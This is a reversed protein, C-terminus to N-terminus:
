LEYHGISNKIVYRTFKLRSYHRFMEEIRAEEFDSVHIRNMPGSTYIDCTAMNILIWQDCDYGENEISEFYIRYLYEGMQIEAKGLKQITDLITEIEDTGEYKFREM